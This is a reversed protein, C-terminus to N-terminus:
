ILVYCRDDRNKYYLLEKQIKNFGTTMKNKMSKLELVAEKYMPSRQSEEKSESRQFM